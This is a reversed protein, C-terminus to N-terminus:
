RLEGNSEDNAALLTEIQDLFAALEGQKGPGETRWEAMPRVMALERADRSLAELEPNAL